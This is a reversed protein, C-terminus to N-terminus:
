HGKGPPLIGQPVTGPPLEEPLLRSLARLGTSSLRQAVRLKASRSRPNAEQEQATAQLPKKTLPRWVSRDKFAQKVRRDELSHFSMLAAVGGPVLIDPLVALLLNLEDLERNVAIRLAQFTLTAPDIGRGRQPGVARVVARRLDVTTHLEGAELALKICRAVRRSRREEGFHYIVDALEDQSLRVILDLASEGRTPDMRMDLPGELRFSMGREADDLQASSIGLDAVVGSVGSLDLESRWQAIDGFKYHYVQARTGFRALRRRALQVANPDRDVAILQSNDCVELLAESHGGAGATLDLLLGGNLPALAQVIEDKMVSVHVPTESPPLELAPM